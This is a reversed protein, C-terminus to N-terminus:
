ITEIWALKAIRYRIGPRTGRKILLGKNVLRTLYASFSTIPLSLKRSAINYIDRLSFWTGDGFNEVIIKWIHDQISGNEDSFKNNDLEINGALLNLMDLVQIVRKKSLNSGEIVISIKEGSPLVDEIKVRPAM